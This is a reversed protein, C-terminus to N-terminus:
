PKNLLRDFFVDTNILCLCVFCLVSTVFVCFCVVFLCGFRGSLGCFKAAFTERSWEPFDASREISEVDPQAVHVFPNCIFSFQVIRYMHQSLKGLSNDFFSPLQGLLFQILSSIQQRPEHDEFVLIAAYVRVVKQLLIRTPYHKCNLAKIFELAGTTIRVDSRVHLM